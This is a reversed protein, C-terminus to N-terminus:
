HLIQENKLRRLSKGLRSISRYLMDGCLTTQKIM